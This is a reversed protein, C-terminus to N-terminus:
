YWDGIPISESKIDFSEGIYVIQLGLVKEFKGAIFTISSIQLILWLLSSAVAALSSVVTMPSFSVQAVSIVSLYIEAM